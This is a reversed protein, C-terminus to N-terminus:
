DGWRYLGWGDGEEGHGEVWGGYSEEMRETESGLGLSGHGLHGLAMIARDRQRRPARGAPRCWAKTAMSGRSGGGDEELLRRDLGRGRGAVMVGLWSV